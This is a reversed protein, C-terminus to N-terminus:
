LGLFSICGVPSNFESLRGLNAYMRLCGSLGGRMCERESFRTRVGAKM